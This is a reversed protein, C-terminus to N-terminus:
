RKARADDLTRRERDYIITAEGISVGRELSIRQYECSLYIDVAKITQGAELAEFLQSGPAAYTDRYRISKSNM